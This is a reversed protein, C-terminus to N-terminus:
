IHVIACGKVKTLLVHVKVRRKAARHANTLERLPSSHDSKHYVEYQQHVGQPENPPPLVGVRDRGQRAAAQPGGADNADGVDVGLRGRSEAGEHQAGNHRSEEGQPDCPEESLTRLLRRRARHM